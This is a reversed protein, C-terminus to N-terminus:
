VVRYFENEGTQRWYSVYGVRAATDLADGCKVANLIGAVTRQEADNLVYFTIEGFIVKGSDRSVVNKWAFRYPMIPTFRALLLLLEILETPTEGTTTLPPVIKAIPYLRDWFEAEDDPNLDPMPAAFPQQADPNRVWDPRSWGCMWESSPDAIGGSSPMVHPMKRSIPARRLENVKTPEGQLRQIKTYLCRTFFGAIKSVARRFIRCVAKQTPGFLMQRVSKSDLSNADTKPALRSGAPQM